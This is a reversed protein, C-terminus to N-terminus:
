MSRLAEAATKLDYTDFGETFRSYVLSLMEKTESKKGASARARAATVTVRLEWGLSGQRRACELAQALVDEIEATECASPEDVGRGEDEVPGSSQVEREQKGARDSRRDVGPRAAWGRESRQAEALAQLADTRVVSMKPPPLMALCQQLHRIAAQEHGQQLLLQGKLVHIVQRRVAVKYDVAVNELEEILEEAQDYLGNSLLISFCLTM